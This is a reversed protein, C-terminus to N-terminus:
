LSRCAAAAIRTAAIDCEGSILQKIMWSGGVARVNDLGLYGAANAPNIGGTPCFGVDPLVAAVSRLFTVGGAAEAPFFKLLRFGRSRAAMAESVTAVGPLFPFEQELICDALQSTLGPSVGWSAGAERAAMLQAPELVTGAGVCAQPLAKSVARICDLALSTRLTIELLTLGAEVLVTSTAIADGVSQFSLVPVVRHTSLIRDISM